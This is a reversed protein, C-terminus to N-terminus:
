EYKYPPPDTRDLNLYAMYHKSTGQVPTLTLVAQWTQQKRDKKFWLSPAGLPRSLDGQQTWGANQMQANYHAALTEFPKATSVLAFSQLSQNNQGGAGGSVVESDLLPSLLPLPEFRSRMEQQMQEAQKKAATADQGVSGVYETSCDATDADTLSVSASTLGNTLPLTTIYL